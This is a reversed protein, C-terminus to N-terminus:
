EAQPQILGVGGANRKYVVNIEKTESDRFVYFDHDIYDLAFIAEELSIPTSLDFSKIKTVKPAEPDVFEETEPADEAMRETAEVSDEGMGKREKGGHYGDVKREKYKVLKRQLRDAVNDISTYMDPSEETSRITVGKLYTTVEVRHSDKVKPNKNVNLFVECETEKIGSIKSLPRELKTNVYQELAPTLDINTGTITIPVNHQSAKTSSFLFTRPRVVVPSTTFASAAAFVLSLSAISLRM